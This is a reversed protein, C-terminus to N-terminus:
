CPCLLGIPVGFRLCLARPSKQPFEQCTSLGRDRDAEYDGDYFAEARHTGLM